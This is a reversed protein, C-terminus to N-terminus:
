EMVEPQLCGDIVVRIPVDFAVSSSLKDAVPDLNSIAKCACCEFATDFPGEGSYDDPDKYIRFLDKQSVLLEAGCGDENHGAGTCILSRVWGRTPRGKKLIEMAEIGYM